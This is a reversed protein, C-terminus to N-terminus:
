KYHLSEYISGNMSTIGVLVTRGELTVNVTISVTIENPQLGAFLIEKAVYKALIRDITMENFKKDFRSDEGDLGLIGFIKSLNGRDEEDLFGQYTRENARTFKM